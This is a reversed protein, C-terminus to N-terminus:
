TKNAAFQCASTYEAGIHNVKSNFKYNQTVIFMAIFAIKYIRNCYVFRLHKCYINTKAM